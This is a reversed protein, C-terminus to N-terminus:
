EPRESTLSRTKGLDAFEKRIKELRENAVAKPDLREKKIWDLLEVRLWLYAKGYRRKTLEHKGQGRGAKALDRRWGKLTKSGQETEDGSIEIRWQELRKAVHKAALEEKIKGKMLLDLVVSTEVRLTLQSIPLPPRGELNAPALLPNSLGRQAERLAWRFDDIPKLLSREIGLDVLHDRVADLVQIAKERNSTTDNARNHRLILGLRGTLQTALDNREKPILTLEDLEDHEDLLRPPRRAM